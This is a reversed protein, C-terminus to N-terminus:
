LKHHVLAAQLADEPHALGSGGPAALLRNNELGMQYAARFWGRTRGEETPAARGSGSGNAAEDEEGKQSLSDARSLTPSRFTIVSLRMFNFGKEEFRGPLSPLPRQCRRHGPPYQSLLGTAPAAGRM